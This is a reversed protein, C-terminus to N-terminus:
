ITEYTAHAEKELPIMSQTEVAISCTLAQLVVLPWQFRRLMLILFKIARFHRQFDAQVRM